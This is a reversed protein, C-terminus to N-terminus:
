RCPDGAVRGGGDVPMGGIAHGRLEAMVLETRRNQARGEATSNDAIPKTEGFGVPVLRHCDIGNAVLWRAIAMARDETVKQNFAEAGQGDTHGEIRLLTIDPRKNLVDRVGLLVDESAAAIEAGGPEFEIPESSTIRGERLEVTPPPVDSPPAEVLPDGPANAPESAGHHHPCAALLVALAPALRRLMM